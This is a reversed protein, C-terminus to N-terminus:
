RRIDVNALWVNCPLVPCSQRPLFGVIPTKKVRRPAIVRPSISVCAELPNANTSQVRIGTM